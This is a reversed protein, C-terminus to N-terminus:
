NIANMNLSLIKQIENQLTKITEKATDGAKLKNFYIKVSDTAEREGKETINNQQQSLANEFLKVSQGYTAEFSNLQQQMTHAYYLSEYNDHLINKAEAKLKSMYYISVGGTLILLLFLFLTGLRIKNKVNLAM